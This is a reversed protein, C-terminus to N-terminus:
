QPLLLANRVEQLEKELTPVKEQLVDALKLAEKNGNRVEADEEDSDQSEHVAYSILVDQKVPELAEKILKKIDKKTRKAFEELDKNVLMAISPFLNGNSIHGRITSIQRRNKGTGSEQAASRYASLMCRLVYSNYNDESASRRILKFAQLVERQARQARYNFHDFRPSVSDSLTPVAKHSILSARIEDLGERVIDGVDNFLQPIEEEVMDWQFALETRMKWILENNWNVDGRKETYHHGNHLCWANYQTWHWSNWDDSKSVAAKEWHGNRQDIFKMIQEQLDSKFENIRERIQKEMKTHAVKIDDLLDERIEETQPVDEVEESVKEMWLRASRVLNPLQALLFNRSEDLQAQANIAHCFKRLEPIGSAEVFQVRGKRCDKDYDKNSVCFVELTKHEVKEAYARKLGAKVFDNRAKILLLDRERKFQKKAKADGRNKARKINDDLNRLKAESVAKGPGCFQTKLATFNIEETRTCVVSVSLSQGASDNWEQPIHQALAAYLSSKLSQDSLARSIKAVIFVHDAKLLYRETARVKALNTDRLGPLDALIIGTKLVQASLFVRIVKTFPWIRNQMLERTIERCKDANRATSTWSGDRGGRPWDLERTWQLLLGLAKRQGEDSTDRFLDERFETRNDFAAQLTSWAVASEEQCRKYDEGNLDQEVEPLYLQSYSWLLEKVTEEINSESLYEVEITFPTTQHPRRQRFETIVSTCATGADSTEAIGNCHLLSNIVSSKGEGSDGLLAIIRTDTTHFNSLQQADDRLRCIDSGSKLQFHDFDGALSKTVRIGRSLQEQFQPTFFIAGEPPKENQVNYAPVQEAASSTTTDADTHNPLIPGTEPAPSPHPSANYLNRFTFAAQNTEQDDSDGLVRMGPTRGRPPTLYRSDQPARPHEPSADQPSGFKFATSRDEHGESAGFLRMRPTNEPFHSHSTNERDPANGRISLSSLQSEVQILETDREPAGVGDGDHSQSGTPPM